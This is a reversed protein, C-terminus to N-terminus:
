ACAIQRRRPRVLSILRPSNILQNAGEDPLNTIDSRAAYLFRRPASNDSAAFVPFLRYTFDLGVIAPDSGFVAPFPHKREILAPLRIKPPPSTLCASADKLTNAQKLTIAKLSLRGVHAQEIM